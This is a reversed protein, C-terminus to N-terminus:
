DCGASSVSEVPRRAEAAVRELVSQFTFGSMLSYARAMGSFYGDEEPTGGPRQASKHADVLETFVQDLRSRGASRRWREYTGDSNGM